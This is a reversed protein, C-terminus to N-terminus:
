GPNGAPFSVGCAKLAKRFSSSAGGPFGGGPFGQGPSPRATPFGSPRATPFGNPRRGPLAVGHRRLCAAIDSRAGPAGFAPRSVTPTPANSAGSSGACGATLTAALLAPGLARLWARRAGNWFVSSL